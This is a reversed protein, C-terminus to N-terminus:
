RITLDVRGVQVDPYERGVPATAKEIVELEVDGISSYLEGPGELILSLLPAPALLVVVQADGRPPSAVLDFRADKSPIQISGAEVKSKPALRNPYLVTMHDEADVQVVLLHGSKPLETTLVLAEGPEFESRNATVPLSRGLKVQLAELRAWRPGRVQFSARAVPKASALTSTQAYLLELEHLGPEETVPAPLTRAQGEQFRGRYLLGEIGRERLFLWGEAGARLEIKARNGFYYVPHNWRSSSVPSM